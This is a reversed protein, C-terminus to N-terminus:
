ADWQVGKNIAMGWVLLPIAIFGGIPGWLWLWFVLSLFVLLPNVQLHRGVLSPTVFQGETLNLGLYAIMPLVSRSGDFTVIGAILLSVAFAMPGIYLVYNLAFALVGWLVPSPLGIWYMVGAVVIGLTANILTITVFYRAVFREARLLFGDEAQIGDAKKLGKTIWAYIEKRSLVFFFLSGVFVLMSAAIMPAFFLADTLNPLEDTLTESAAKETAPGNVADAVDESVENIGRLIHSLWEVIDRLEQWILPGRLVLREVVPELLVYLLSLGALGCALTLIAGTIRPLGLRELGDSLPSLVVGVVLALVLPAAISQAMKLAVFLVVVAILTVSATLLKNDTM